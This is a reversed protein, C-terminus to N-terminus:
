CILLPPISKSVSRSQVNDFTTTDHAISQTSFDLFGRLPGKTPITNGRGRRNRQNNRTPRVYVNPSPPLNLNEAADTSSSSPTPPERRSQQHSRTSRTQRPSVRENTNSLAEVHDSSTQAEDSNGAYYTLLPLPPQPELISRETPVPNSDSHKIIILTPNRPRRTRTPPATQRPSPHSPEDDAIDVVPPASFQHRNRNLSVSFNEATKKRTRVMTETTSASTKSLKPLTPYRRRM